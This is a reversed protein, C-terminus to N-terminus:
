RLIFSSLHEILPLVLSAQNGIVKQETHTQIMRSYCAYPMEQLVEGHDWARRGTICESGRWKGARGKRRLMRLEEAVDEDGKQSRINVASYFDVDTIASESGCTHHNVLSHCVPSVLCILM